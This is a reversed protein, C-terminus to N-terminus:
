RPLAKARARPAFPIIRATPRAAPRLRRGLPVRRIALPLLALTAAVWGLVTLFAVQLAVLAARLFLLARGDARRRAVPVTAIRLHARASESGPQPM